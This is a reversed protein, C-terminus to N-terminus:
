ARLSDAKAIWEPLYIKSVRLNGNWDFRVVAFATVPVGGGRLRLVMHLTSERQIRYDSLTKRDILQKKAFILRQQDSPVFLDFTAIYRNLDKGPPIGEKDQVKTKVNLITDDPSVELTITKGTM